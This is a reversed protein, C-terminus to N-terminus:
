RTANFSINGRGTSIEPRASSSANAEIMAAAAARASSEPESVASTLSSARTCSSRFITLYQFFTRPSPLSKSSRTALDARTTAAVHLMLAFSLERGAGDAALKSQAM